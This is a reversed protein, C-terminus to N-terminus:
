YAGSRSCGSQWTACIPPPAALRHFNQPVWLAQDDPIQQQRLVDPMQAAIKHLYQDPSRYEKISKTTAASVLVTNALYHYLDPEPLTDRSFNDSHCVSATPRYGQM